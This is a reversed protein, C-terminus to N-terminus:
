TTDTALSRHFETSHGGMKGCKKCFFCPPEYPHCRVIDWDIKVFGKSLLVDLVEQGCYLRVNRTPHAESRTSSGVASPAGKAISFLKKARVQGLRGRFAEPFLGCSGRMVGNAVQEDSLSQGVGMLTILPASSDPMKEVRWKGFDGM